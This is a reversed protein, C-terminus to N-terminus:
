IESLAQLPALSKSSRCSDMPRHDGAERQQNKVLPDTQSEFHSHLGWSSLLLTSAASAAGALRRNRRLEAECEKLM